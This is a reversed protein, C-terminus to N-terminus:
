AEAGYAADDYLGRHATELLQRRPMNHLLSYKVILEPFKAGRETLANYFLLVLEASSLQARVFRTYRHKETDSVDSEDVYKFIHYLNRFYHGLETEHDAYLMDYAAVAVERSPADRMLGRQANFYNLLGEHLRPFVQRGRLSGVALAEVISHHLGLLQFFTNEFSQKRFTKNQEELQLKQGKMEERTLALEERTLALEERQLQLEDRQLVITFILGGFAFASFLASAGGFMDGFVSRDNPDVRWMVLAWYGLWVGLASGILLALLGWRPGAGELRRKVASV